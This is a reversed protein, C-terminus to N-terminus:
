RNAFDIDRSSIIQLLRFFTLPVWRGMKKRHDNEELQAQSIGRNDRKHENKEEETKKKKDNEYQQEDNKKKQNEYKEKQHIEGRADRKSEKILEDFINREEQLHQLHQAIPPPQREVDKVEIDGRWDTTGMSDNIEELKVGQRTINKPTDVSDM